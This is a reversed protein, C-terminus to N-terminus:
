RAGRASRDLRRDAPMADRPIAGLDESAIRNRGREKAQYLLADARRLFADYSLGDAPASVVGFSATCGFTAGSRGMRATEIARRIREAVAVAEESTVARMLIVFEEGGVRAVVDEARTQEELISAVKQLALDGCHHGRDDNISKFRDIDLEILSVLEGRRLAASFIENSRQVLFRRNCLGTLPDTNSLAILDQQGDLMYSVVLFVGFGAFFAPSLSLLFILLEQEGSTSAFSLGLGSLNVLTWGAFVAALVRDGFNAGARRWVIVACSGNALAIYAMVLQMGEIGDVALDIAFYALSVGLIVSVPLASRSRWAVGLVMASYMGALCGDVLAELLLSPPFSLSAILSCFLAFHLLFMAQFARRAPPEGPRDQLQFVAVLLLAALLAFTGVMNRQFDM